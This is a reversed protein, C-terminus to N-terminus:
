FPCADYGPLSDLAVESATKQCAIDANELPIVGKEDTGLLKEIAFSSAEVWAQAFTAGIFTETERNYAREETPAEYRVDIAWGNNAKKSSITVESVDRM